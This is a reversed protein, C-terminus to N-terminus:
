DNTATLVCCEPKLMWSKAILDNKQRQQIKRTPM